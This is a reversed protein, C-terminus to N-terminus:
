VPQDHHHQSLPRLRLAALHQALQTLLTNKEVSQSVLRRKFIDACRHLPMHTIRWRGVRCPIGITSNWSRLNGLPDRATDGHTIWSERLKAFSHERPHLHWDSATASTRLLHMCTQSFGRLALKVRLFDRPIRYQLPEIGLQKRLAGAWLEEARAEHLPGTSLECSPRLWM